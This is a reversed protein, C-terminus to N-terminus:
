FLIFLCFFGVVGVLGVLVGLLLYFRGSSCYYLGGIIVFLYCFLLCVLKLYWYGEFCLFEFGGEGVMSYFLDYGVDDDFCGGYVYNFCSVCVWLWGLVVGIDVYSDGVSDM